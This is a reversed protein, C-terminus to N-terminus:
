EVHPISEILKRLGTEISTRATWGTSALKTTDAVTFEKPSQQPTIQTNPKALLNQPFSRSITNVLYSLNTPTGSGINIPGQKKNTIVNLLAHSVDDIYIYDKESNPSNIHFPRNEQFSRVASSSIRNPHEGPGYPYFIRPWSYNTLRSSLISYLEIKSQIYSEQTANNLPSDETLPTHSPAYEACTGIACLFPPKDVQNLHKALRISADVFAKNLPSNRYIGPTSIWAAHLCADYNDPNINSIQTKLFDFAVPQINSQRPLKNPTRSLATITHGNAAAHICFARGIFGSAGTVLINM